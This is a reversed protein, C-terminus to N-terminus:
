AQEPSVANVYCGAGWELGAPRSTRPLVEIHWHYHPLEASRLPATHLFWNYAPEALVVDIAQLLRKILEALEAALPEAISEYRSHHGKPMLWTEYSFRGAFATVALLNPTEAVARSCDELEYTVI